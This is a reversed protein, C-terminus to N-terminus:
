LLNSNKKEVFEKFGKLTGSLVNESINEQIKQPIEIGSNVMIFFNMICKNEGADDFGAHGSIETFDGGCSRWFIRKEKDNYLFDLSINKKPILLPTTCRISKIKGANDRELVRIDNIVNQWIGSKDLECMARYAVEAPASIEIKMSRSGAAINETRKEAKSSMLVTGKQLVTQVYNAIVKRETEGIQLFKVGMGHNDPNTLASVTEGQACITFTDEPLNFMLILKTGLLLPQRTILFIGGECIDKSYYFPNGNGSKEKVITRLPARPYQRIRDYQLM